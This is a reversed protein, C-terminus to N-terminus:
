GPSTEAAQRIGTLIRNVMAPPDGCARLFELQYTASDIEAPRGIRTADVYQRVAADIGAVEGSPSVDTQELAEHLTLEALTAAAWFDQPDETLALRALFRSVTLVENFDRRFADDRPRPRGWRLAMVVNVGTYFDPDLQFGLRYKQEMEAFLSRAVADDVQARQDQIQRKLLGGWIGYTESDRYGATEAETLYRKAEDRLRQKVAPDDSSEAVRRTAMVVTHLWTRHLPDDPEPRSIHLLQMAEAYACESMLGVALEIRCARRAAETIARAQAVNIIEERMRDLSGSQTAAAVQERITKQALRAQPLESRARFPRVIKGLDFWEHCPSDDQGTTLATRVIPRLTRIAAEAQEDTVSDPGRIFTHTRIMNVDFPPASRAFGTITPNLLVTSRSAFVHRIGLEYAVNFNLASLDGLVLDTNALDSLMAAHIIGSDTQLDARTWQVDFDELLPRYVRHFTPDCQLFRNARPDKKRGYPMVIFVRQAVDPDPDLDITLMTRLEASRVLDDTATPSEPDPQPRVVLLWVRQGDVNALAHGRDLLAINHKQLLNADDSSELGADNVDVCSTISDYDATWPPGAPAVMTQRFTAADYPLLVDIAISEELAARAFLIDAGPALGGVLRQPALSQLLGRIRSYLRDAEASTMQLTRPAGGYVVIM